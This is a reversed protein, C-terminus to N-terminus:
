RRGKARSAQEAPTSRGGEKAGATGSGPGELEAEVGEWETMLAEIRAQLRDREEQLRHVEARPTRSYFEPDAFEEDIALLRAETTEIQGTITDRRGVLQKRAHDSLKPRTERGGKRSEVAGSRAAETASVTPGGSSESVSKTIKKERQAKLVVTDVDLHDDGCYHVYEEYTGEFDQIGDRRIEVV